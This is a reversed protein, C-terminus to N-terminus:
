WQMLWLPMPLREADPFMHKRDPNLRQELEKCTAILTPQSTYTDMWSTQKNRRTPKM